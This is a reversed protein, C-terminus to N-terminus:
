EHTVYKKVVSDKFFSHGCFIQYYWINIYHYASYM